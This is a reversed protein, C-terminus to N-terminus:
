SNSARFCFPCLEAGKQSPLGPFAEKVRLGKAEELTLAFTRAM